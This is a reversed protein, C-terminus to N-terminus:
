QAARLPAVNRLLVRVLLSPAGSPHGAPRGVLWPNAAPREARRKQRGRGRGGEGKRGGLLFCTSSSNFTKAALFCWPAAGLATSAARRYAKLQTLEGCSAASPPYRRAPFFFPKFLFKVQMRQSTSALSIAQVASIHWM